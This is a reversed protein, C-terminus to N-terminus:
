FIALDIKFLSLYILKKQKFVFVQNKITLDHLKLITTM